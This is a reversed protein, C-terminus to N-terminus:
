NHSPFIPTHNSVGQSRYVSTTSHYPARACGKKRIQHKLSTVHTVVSMPVRPPQIYQAVRLVELRTDARLLPYSFPKPEMGLFQITRCGLREHYLGLRKHPRHDGLRRQISGSRRSSPGPRLRRLSRLSPSTGSPTPLSTTPTTGSAVGNASKPVPSTACSV